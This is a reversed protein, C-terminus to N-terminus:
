RGNLRGSALLANSIQCRCPSAAMRPIPWQQFRTGDDAIAAIRLNWNGAGAAVAATLAAGDFTFAPTQDDSVLASSLCGWSM